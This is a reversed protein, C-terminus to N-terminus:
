PSNETDTAQAAAPGHLRFRLENLLFRNGAPDDFHFDRLRHDGPRERLLEVLGQQLELLRRQALSLQDAAELATRREAVADRLALFPRKGLLVALGADLVLLIALVHLIWPVTLTM